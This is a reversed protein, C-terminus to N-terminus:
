KKFLIKERALSKKASKVEKPHSFEKKTSIVAWLFSLILIGAVYFWFM